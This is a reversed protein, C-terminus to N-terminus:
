RSLIYVRTFGSSTLIHAGIDCAQASDRCDIVIHGSAPLEAPGRTSLERWPINVAGQDHGESFTERGRIDLVLPTQRTSRIDALATASGTSLLHWLNGGHDMSVMFM